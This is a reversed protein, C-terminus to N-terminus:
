WLYNICISHLFTLSPKFLHCLWQKQILNTTLGESILAFMIGFNRFSWRNATLKYDMDYVCPWIQMCVFRTVVKAEEAFLWLQAKAVAVRDREGCHFLPLRHLWLLPPDALNFVRWEVARQTRRKKRLSRASHETNITSFWIRCIVHLGRWHRQLSRRCHPRTTSFAPPVAQRNGWSCVQRSRAATSLITM